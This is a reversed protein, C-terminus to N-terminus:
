TSGITTDIDSGLRNKKSMNGITTLNSYAIIARSIGGQPNQQFAPLLHERVMAQVCQRTPDQPHFIANVAIADTLHTDTYDKPGLKPIAPRSDTLREAAKLFNKRLDKIHHERDRLREALLKVLKLFDKEETNQWYHRHLSGFILGYHVHPPQASSPLRCPHLNMEKQCTKTVFTGNWHPKITLDLFTSTQGAGQPTWVLRKGPPGCANMTKMFDNYSGRENKIVTFADNILRKCLLATPKPLIENEEHCSYCTTACACTCSTGM